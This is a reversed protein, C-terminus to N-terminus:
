LWDRLIPAGAFSVILIGVLMVANRVVYFVVGLVNWVYEGSSNVTASQVGTLTWKSMGILCLGFILWFYRM